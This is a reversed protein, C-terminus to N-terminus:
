ETQEIRIVAPSRWKDGRSKEDQEYKNQVMKPVESLFSECDKTMKVPANDTMMYQYNLRKQLRSQEQIKSSRLQNMNAKFREDRKIVPRHKKLHFAMTNVLQDKESQWKASNFVKQLHGKGSESASFLDTFVNNSAATDWVTM